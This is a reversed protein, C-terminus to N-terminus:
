LVEIKGLKIIAKLQLLDEFTTIKFNLKDGPIFYVNNNNKIVLQCDDTSDEINKEKANRHAEYITSFKFSQPTQGLYLEKRVPVDEITEGNTSKIITDSSPIVTDVASYELAGKINNNIIRQSILPRAADHILVIDEDLVENRLINLCNEVSKQRTDGGNVIWKVKGIGYKRIWIKLQSEWENKCAVMIYDIDKNIDFAELTHIILPKGYIDIFQKPTDSGMRTGSGGALIIAINM